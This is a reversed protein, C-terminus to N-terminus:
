FSLLHFYHGIHLWFKDNKTVSCANDLTTLCTRRSVVASLRFGDRGIFWLLLCLQAGGNVRLNARGLSTLGEPSDLLESPSGQPIGAAFSYSCHTM